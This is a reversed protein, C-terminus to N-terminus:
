DGSPELGYTLQEIQDQTLYQTKVTQFGAVGDEFYENLKVNLLDLDIENAIDELDFSIVFVPIPEDWGDDRHEYHKEHIEWWLEDFAPSEGSVSLAKTGEDDNEDIHLRLNSIFYTTQQDQIIDDIFEDSSLINIFMNKRMVANPIGFDELFMQIKDFTSETPNLRYLTGLDPYKEQMEDEKRSSIEETNKNKSPQLVEAKWKDKRRDNMDKVKKDTIVGSINVKYDTVMRFLATEFFGDDRKEKHADYTGAYELYGKDVLSKRAKSASTISVNAFASVFKLAFTSTGDYNKYMRKLADLVQFAEAVKKETCRLKNIDKYYSQKTEDISLIGADYLMKSFWVVFEAPSLRGINTNYKCVAFLRVLNYDVQNAKDAYFNSFDRVLIHSKDASWRIGMSSRMDVHEPIISNMLSTYGVKTTKLKLLSSLKMQIQQNHFLRNIFSSDLMGEEINLKNGSLLEETPDAMVFSNDASAYVETGPDAVVNDGIIRSKSSGSVDSCGELYQQMEFKSQLDNLKGNQMRRESKSHAEKPSLGRKILKATKTSEEFEDILYSLKQFNLKPLTKIVKWPTENEAVYSTQDPLIVYGGDALLDINPLCHIKRSLQKEKKFYYHIGGSITKVKLATSPILGEDNLRELANQTLIMNAQCLGHNDVDIVTFQDNPAGILADPNESWWKTIKTKNTTADRFGNGGKRKTILPAKKKTCPFIKIGNEAYAIAKELQNM